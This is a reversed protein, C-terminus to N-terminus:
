VFLRFRVKTWRSLYYPAVRTPYRSSPDLITFHVGQGVEIVNAALVKPDSINKGNLLHKTFTCFINLAIPQLVSRRAGAEM